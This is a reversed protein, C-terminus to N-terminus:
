VNTGLVDQLQGPLGLDPLRLNKLHGGDNAEASERSNAYPAMQLGYPADSGVYADSLM